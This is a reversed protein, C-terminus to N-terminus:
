DSNRALVGSYIMSRIAIGAIKRLGGLAEACQPLTNIVCDSSNKAWINETDRLYVRLLTLFGAVDRAEDDTRIPLKNQYELETWVASCAADFEEKTVHRSMKGKRKIIQTELLWVM